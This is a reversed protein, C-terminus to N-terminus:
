LGGRAYQENGHGRDHDPDQLTKGGRECGQVGKELHSVEWSNVETQHLVAGIHHPFSV